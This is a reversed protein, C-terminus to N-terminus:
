YGWMFDIFYLPVLILAAVFALAALTTLCKMAFPHKKSFTESRERKMREFRSVEDHSFYPRDGEPDRDM